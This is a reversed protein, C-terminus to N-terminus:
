DRDIEASQTEQLLQSVVRNSLDPDFGRRALYDLMRRTAKKVELERYRWLQKRLLETVVRESEIATEFEKLAEVITAQEIGKGTLDRVFRRRGVARKGELRSEIWHRAYAQDDLLKLRSLDDIARDIEEAPFASKTLKSRVEQESRPRRSLYNLGVERASTDARSKGGDM